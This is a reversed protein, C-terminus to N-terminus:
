TKRRRRPKEIWVTTKGGKRVIKVRKAGIWGTSQKLARVKPGNSVPPHLRRYRAQSQLARYRAEAMSGKKMARRVKRSIHTSKPAHFRSRRRPNPKNKAKAM